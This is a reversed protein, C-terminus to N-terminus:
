RRDKSRLTPRRRAQVLLSLASKAVAQKPAKCSVALVDYDHQTMAAIAAVGGGAFGAVLLRARGRLGAILPVASDLLECAKALEHRVVAKLAASTHSASLESEDCGYRALDESPLYVRGRAFDEGVDQCHEVIQLATCVEDSWMAREPTSAHLVQLVLRGVPNASLRCYGVLEDLTAYRTVTQDRRNAEILDHLLSTDLGRRAIAVALPGFIAGEARGDRALALEAEAADLLAGRDGPAEDGLDDVLRAFGYIAMLDARTARDLFFPAVPFNESQAQSLVSRASMPDRPLPDAPGGAEIARADMRGM